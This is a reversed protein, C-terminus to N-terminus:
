SANWKARVEKEYAEAAETQVNLKPTPEQLLAHPALQRYVHQATKLPVVQAALRENESFGSLFRDNRVSALNKGLRSEACAV